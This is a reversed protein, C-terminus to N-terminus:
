AATEAATKRRYTQRVVVQVPGCGALRRPGPAQDESRVRGLHVGGCWPCRISLWWWGRGPVPEYLSASARHRQPATYDALAVKPSPSPDASAEDPRSELHAPLRGEADKLPPM